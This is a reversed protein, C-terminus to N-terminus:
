LIFNYIGSKSDILGAQINGTKWNKYFDDISPTRRRVMVEYRVIIMQQNPEFSMAKTGVPYWTISLPLKAAYNGISDTYQGNILLVTFKGVQEIPISISANCYPLYKTNYEIKDAVKLYTITQASASILLFFAALLFLLTKM